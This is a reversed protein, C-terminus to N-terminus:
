RTAPSMRRALVHDVLEAAGEADGCPCLYRRGAGHYGWTGGPAAHVGVALGTRDRPGPPFVCLLPPRAPLEDARYLAVCRYGKPRLAAALADLHRIATSRGWWTRWGLVISEARVTLARM